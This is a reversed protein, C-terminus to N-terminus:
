LGVPLDSSTINTVEAGLENDELVTVTVLRTDGWKYHVNALIISAITECSMALLDYGINELRGSESRWVPQGLAPFLKRELWSQVQQIELERDENRVQIKVTVFFRHRHKERLHKVEGPAEPWNHFGVFDAKVVISINAM